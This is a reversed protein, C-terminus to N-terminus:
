RDPVDDDEFEGPNEIIHFQNSRPEEEEVEEEINEISRKNSSGM